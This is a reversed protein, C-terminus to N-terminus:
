GQLVADAFELVDIRNPSQVPGIAIVYIKITGLVNHLQEGFVARHHEQRSFIAAM